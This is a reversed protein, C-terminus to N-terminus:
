NIVLLKAVGSKEGNSSSCNILYVGSAVRSGGTTQLNWEMQGGQSKSEWVLNGAVDTIKVIADNILGKIYIPGSYGPRIPNPYAHLENFDDYGKIIPSRYSQVGIDNAIFVDGTSEDIALGSILNSYLPSNDSTFHHIQTQGDPSFCYIGSSETGIWKQNAGDVAIATIKDNDLLIQPQGDQEILIQQSDWNGGTFVNEPNYFVTIGKQTGVWIKGDLDECISFIDISPLLGQGKATTVLKTNQSNPAPLGDVGNYVLLGGGRALIVWAQNYKNFIIKSVTATPLTQAFDLLAWTNNQKRVQIIRSSATVLSWLNSNKDFRIGTVQLDGLPDGHYGIMPSNSKNIVGVLQNNKLELIGDGMCGFAIHTKDNPDITVSNVDNIQPIITSLSKWENDQFISPLTHNYNFSYAEGLNVPALAINGGKIAIDNAFNSNPGNLSIKKINNVGKYDILGYVNDALFFQDKNEYYLDNISSNTQPTTNYNTIYNNKFGNPNFDYSGWQDIVVLTNYKSYDYLKKVTSGSINPYKSWKLGDFQYTTDKFDAGSILKESYNALIKGDFNVIANYIGPSIGSNLSKWNQFNNLNNKPKGYYIGFQTAAFIATDNSTVQYIKYNVLGNSIYYTDKIELKDTDFVVIGFGTAIYAINGKFYVEGITKNGTIVKRKIDSINVISGNSKIIDINANKYIVLLSNNADCKRLLQVGVDSLGNIKNMKEISNDSTNFKFLGQGNSVYVIDGVKSVTNAYNYSLHDVWQGIKVQSYSRLNLILIVLIFINKPQM